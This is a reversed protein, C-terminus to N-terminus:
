DMLRDFAQTERHVPLYRGFLQRSREATGMLGPQQSYAFITTLRRRDGKVESVRHLAYRGKFLQLDGPRLDLTTIQQEGEGTLVADVSALNENDADRVNPVFQFSGGAEASQTLLSVTFENTDFHWPHQKGPKLVNICLGSLPDALEYLKPVSFCHSLFQKFSEDGYLRQVVQQEPIQDRAVFANGRVMQHRGPHDDAYHQFPDQNYVNVVEEKFYAQDAISGTEDTLEACKDPQIFGPLVACGQETLRARVSDILTRGTESELQQLPYHELDVLGALRHM